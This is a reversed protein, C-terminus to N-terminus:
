FNHRLLVVGFGPNAAQPRIDPVIDAANVADGSPVSRSIFHWAERMSENRVADDFIAIKPRFATSYMCYNLYTPMFTHDADVFLIDVPKDGIQGAVNRLIEPRNADGMVKKIRPYAALHEDSEQTIDVTVILGGEEDAIGSWLARASGGCHTGIEIAGQARLLRAVGALFYYYADPQNRIQKRDGWHIRGYGIGSLDIQQGIDWAARVLDPPSIGSLPVVDAATTSGLM